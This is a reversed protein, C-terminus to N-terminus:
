RKKKKCKKKKAAAVRKRKKKCKKKKTTPPPTTVPPSTTGTGPGPPPLPPDLERNFTNIVFTSTSYLFGDGGFAVANTPEMQDGVPVCSAEEIEALDSEGFCGDPVIGGTLPNRAFQTIANDQNAAVYVSRGDPSIALPHHGNPGSDLSGPPDNGLGDIETCAAQVEDDNDSFCVVPSLTGSPNDRQFRVIAGDAVSTVYVSDQGSGTPAIAVGSAGNLGETHDVTAPVGDDCFVGGADEICRPTNLDGISGGAAIRDLTIVSDRVSDTMYLSTLNPSVVIGSPLEIDIQGGSSIDTCGDENAGDTLYCADFDPRGYTPDTVPVDTKRKFQAITDDDSSGVYVSEGDPSVTVALPQELGKANPCPAPTAAQTDEDDICSGNIDWDVAGTAPDRAFEILADDTQSVVYISRGDPSITIASPDILPPVDSLCDDTMGPGEFCGTFTLAGTAPDRDFTNMQEVGAGVSYANKGDPSVVLDSPSGMTAEGPECADTGVVDDLCNAFTLDGFDASASGAGFVATVLATAFLAAIGRGLRM